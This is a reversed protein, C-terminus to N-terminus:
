MEQRALLLELQRALLEPSKELDVRVLKISIEHEYNEILLEEILFEDKQGLFRPYILVINRCKFRISYALMQYIDDHSIKLTSGDYQAYKYKADIVCAIGNENICTIDPKLQLLKKDKLRALYKVPAQYKIRYEASAYRCLIKYLYLEFLRNLPVLFSFALEKGKNLSPNSNQYFLKAMNFVAEYKSNHRDFKINNWIDGSLRVRTVDELWLLSQKLKRKNNKNNTRSILNLSISKFIGNLLIDESYQDYHVYHLHKRFSNKKMTETYDIKGKIFSQNESVINYGRNIDRRFQLLLEDVYIGIFLELLDGEFRDLTQSSPIRKVQNYNTFSLMKIFIEFSKDISNKCGEHNAIKPYILLRTKNLQVFGVYHKILLKGDAQLILNNEGIISKMSIIDKKQQETLSLKQQSDEFIKIVNTDDM